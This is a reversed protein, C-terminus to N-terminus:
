RRAPLRPSRPRIPRLAAPLRFAHRGGAVTGGRATTPEDHMRHNSVTRLPAGSRASENHTAQGLSSVGPTPSTEVLSCAVPDVDSSGVVVAVLEATVPETSSDDTPVSSM